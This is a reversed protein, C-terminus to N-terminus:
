QSEIPMVSASASLRRGWHITLAILAPLEDRQIQDLWFAAIRRAEADGHALGMLWAHALHRLVQM